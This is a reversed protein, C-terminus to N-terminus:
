ANAICLALSFGLLVISLAAARQAFRLYYERLLPSVIRQGLAADPRLEPDLTMWVETRCIPLALARYAKLLLLACASLVLLGGVKCALVLDWSLGVMLTAIALGAFGCGRAVCAEVHEELDHMM